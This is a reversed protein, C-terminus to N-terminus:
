NTTRARADRPRVSASAARRDRYWRVVGWGALGVLLAGFLAVPIMIYGGSIKPRDYTAGGGASQPSYDRVSRVKPQYPTGFTVKPILSEVVWRGHYRIVRLDFLIPGKTRIYKKQPQLMISGGVENPQVYDLWWHYHRGRAPYPYAPSRRNFEARTLGARMTPSVFAYAAGASRHRVAHFVFVDVAHDISKREAPSLKPAALASSALVAAGCLATLILAVHRMRRRYRHEQATIISM